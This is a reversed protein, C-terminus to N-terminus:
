RSPWAIRFSFLCGTVSFPILCTSGFAAAVKASEPPLTFAPSPSRAASRCIPASIAGPAQRVIFPLLFILEGRATRIVQHLDRQRYRWAFLTARFYWDILFVGWVFPLSLHLWTVAVWSLFVRIGWMAVLTVLFVYHTDGTGRPQRCLRLLHRAAGPRLSWGSSSAARKM